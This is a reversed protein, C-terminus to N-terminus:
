ASAADPPVFGPINQLSDCVEFLDHLKARRFSDLVDPRMACLVIRGGAHVIGRRFSVLVGMGLSSCFSFGSMELVVLKPRSLMVRM